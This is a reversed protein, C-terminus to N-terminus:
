RGVGLAPRRRRETRGAGQVEGTAADARRPHRRDAQRHAPASHRARPLLPVAQPAGARLGAGEALGASLLHRCPHSRFQAFERRQRHRRHGGAGARRAGGDGAPTRHGVRGGRGRGGRLRGAGGDAEDRASDTVSRTYPLIRPHGGCGSGGPVVAERRPRRHELGITRHRGAPVAVRGEGRAICPGRGQRRCPRHGARRAPHQHGPIHRRGATREGVLARDPGLAHEPQAAIVPVVQHVQQDPAHERRRLRPQIGAMHSLSAPGSVRGSVTRAGDGPAAGPAICQRQEVLVPQQHGAGVRRQDFQQAGEAPAFQEDPATGVHQPRQAEEHEAVAQEVLGSRGEHPQGCM